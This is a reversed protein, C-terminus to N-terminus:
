RLIVEVRRNAPENVNDATPVRLEREGRGAVRANAVPLGKKVLAARIEVAREYSLKDNAEAAGVTDTHGTIEVDSAETVVKRLAELIPVSEPTLDTTGETFYMVYHRPAFPVYNTLRDFNAKSARSRVKAGRLETWTNGATLQGREAGTKPDLVAVAGSTAAGEDNLLTVRGSACGGLFAAGLLGLGLLIRAARM